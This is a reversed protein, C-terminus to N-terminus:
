DNLILKTDKLFKLHGRNELGTEQNPSKKVNGVAVVRASQILTKGLSEIHLYTSVTHLIYHFTLFNCFFYIPFASSLISEICNLFGKRNLLFKILIECM